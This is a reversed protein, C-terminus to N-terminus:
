RHGRDGARPPQPRRAPRRRPRRARTRPASCWPASRSCSRGTPAIRGPSAGSAPWCSSPTLRVGRGTSPRSSSIPPPTAWDTPWSRPLASDKRPRPRRRCACGNGAGIELDRVSAGLGVPQDREASRGHEALNGLDHPRFMQEGGSAPPTRWDAEGEILMLRAGMVAARQREGGSLSPPLADALQGLGVWVLLDTLDGAPSTRGAVTLPLAVNAAVTQSSLLNFHQFIMGIRRRQRRQRQPGQQVLLVPQLARREQM